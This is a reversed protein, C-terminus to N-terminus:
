IVALAALERLPRGALVNLYMGITHAALKAHLRALLGSPSKAHNTEIQLQESLQSNVTEIIQRFSGLARQLAAPLQEKQNSRTPTLLVLSNHEQLQAQLPGNIYAKDGVVVLEHKDGLLQETFTGDTLNAPALVFDVIVGDSSVLLHLKFGYVREKKSSNYGHAAFGHWRHEGNAHAFGVVSVPISDIVGLQSGLLELLWLRVERRIRSTAEGLARRRRNYRSREPLRPFLALYHNRIYRLLRTEKDLGIIEAVLTLTILESDTFESDPGPRSDYPAILQKYLDDVLTYMCTCLDEFRHIM